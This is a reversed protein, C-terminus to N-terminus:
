SLNNCEEDRGGSSHTHWGCNPLKALSGEFDGKSGEGGRSDKWSKNLKMSNKIWRDKFLCPGQMIKRGNRRIPKLSWPILGTSLARKNM